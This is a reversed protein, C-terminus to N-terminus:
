YVRTTTRPTDKTKQKVHNVVAIIIFISSIIYYISLLEIDLIPLTILSDLFAVNLNIFNSLIIIRHWTCFNFIKSCVYILFTALYSNGITFDLIISIYPVELHYLTNNISMGAMQIVPIFKILLLFLKKM